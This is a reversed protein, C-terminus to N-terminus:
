KRVEWTLALESIGEAITELCLERIREGLRDETFVEDKKCLRTGVISTELTWFAGGDASAPTHEVFCTVGLWEVPHVTNFRWYAGTAPALTPM